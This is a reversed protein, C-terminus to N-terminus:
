EEAVVRTGLRLWRSKGPPIPLTEQWAFGWAPPPEEHGTLLAVGRGALKPMSSGLDQYSVARSIVWDFAGAIAEARQSIVKVNPLSRSAERLFVAKRQHSEILTIHCDARLVAVPFGPFGPGSGVDAITLPGSPLHTGLFLSEVYHRDVVEALDKITTLNLVKNWRVMLDYHSQLTAVQSDTLDAIGRARERLVDAFM